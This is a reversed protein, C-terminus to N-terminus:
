FGQWDSQESDYDVLNEICKVGTKLSPTGQHKGSLFLFSSYVQM